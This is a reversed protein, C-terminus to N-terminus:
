TYFEGRSNFSWTDVQLGLILEKNIDLSTAVGIAVVGAPNLKSIRVSFSNTLLERFSEKAIISRIEGADEHRVLKGCLDVLM